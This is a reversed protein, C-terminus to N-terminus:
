KGIQIRQALGNVIDMEKVEIEPSLDLYDGFSVLFAGLKDIAVVLRLGFGCFQGIRFPAKETHLCQDDIHTLLADMDMELEDPHKTKIMATVLFVDIEESKKTPLKDSKGKLKNPKIPSKNTFKDIYKQYDKINNKTSKDKM